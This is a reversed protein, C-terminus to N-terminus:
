EANSQVQGLGPAASDCEAGRLDWTVIQCWAENM